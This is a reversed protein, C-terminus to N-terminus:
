GKGPQGEVETVQVQYEATEGPQYIQAAPKNPTLTIKKKKKAPNIPLRVYGVRFGPVGGEIGGEQPLSIPLDMGKM